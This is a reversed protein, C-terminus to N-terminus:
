RNYNGYLQLYNFATTKMMFKENYIKKGNIKMLKIESEDLALFSKISEVFSNTSFDESIFGISPSIIDKVGGAPTCIPIIGQQIAEILSIPMGENLSSLCFANSCALYDTPNDKYGLLFIGESIRNKIKNAIENDQPTGVIILIIDNGVTILTNFADVLMLQNKVPNIRALNIFVKTKPTNKYSEIEKFVANFNQSVNIKPRGNFIVFPQIKPFLHSFEINSESSIVVPKVKSFSYLLKDIYKIAKKQYMEKPSAHITNVISIKNMFLFSNALMYEFANLHTHVVDPKLKKILNFVKWLISLDLGPKKNLTIVKIKSNLDKFYAHDKDFNNFIILTLQCNHDIVLSNSLDIVFREAGGERLQPLIQFIHM